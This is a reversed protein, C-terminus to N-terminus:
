KSFLLASRSSLWGQEQNNYAVADWKKGRLLFTTENGNFSPFIRCQFPCFRSCSMLFVHFNLQPLTENGKGHCRGQIQLAICTIKSLFLKLVASRSAKNRLLIHFAWSIVAVQSTWVQKLTQLTHTYHSPTCFPNQAKPEGPAKLLLIVSSLSHSQKSVTNAKRSYTRYQLYQQRAFGSPIILICFQM